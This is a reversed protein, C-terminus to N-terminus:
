KIRGLGFGLLLGGATWAPKEWWDDKVYITNLIYERYTYISDPKQWLMVTFRNQPFSYDAYVTDGKVITDLKAIFPKTVIVTDWEKQYEIVPVAKEIVITKGPQVQVITDRKIETSQKYIREPPCSCRGAIFILAAMALTIVITVIYKTGNTM